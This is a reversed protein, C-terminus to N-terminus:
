AARTSCPPRPVQPLAGFVGSRTVRRPLAKRKHGSSHNADSCAQLLQRMGNKKQVIKKHLPRCMHMHMHMCMHCTRTRTRAYRYRLTATQVSQLTRPPPYGKAGFFPRWKTADMLQWDVM